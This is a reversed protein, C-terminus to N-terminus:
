IIKFKHLIKLIDLYWKLKPPPFELNPAINPDINYKFCLSLVCRVRNKHCCAKFLINNQGDVKYKYNEILLELVNPDDCESIIYAYLINRVDNDSINNSSVYITLKKLKNQKCFTKINNIQTRDM